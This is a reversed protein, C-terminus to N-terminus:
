FPIDDLDDEECYASGSPEYQEAMVGEYMIGECMACILYFGKKLPDEHLYGSDPLNCWFTNWWTNMAPLTAEGIMLPPMYKIWFDKSQKDSQLYEMTHQHQALFQVSPHTTSTNM